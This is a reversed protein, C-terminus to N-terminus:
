PNMGAVYMGGMNGVQTGISSSPANFSGTGATSAAYTSFGAGAANVLTGLMSPVQATSVGQIPEPGFDFDQLARPMEYDAIPTDLPKLPDPAKEPEFMRQAKAQLDAARHQRTIDLLKMRTSRGASVLSETMIAQQRGLNALDSQAQKVASRGAQSKAALEGKKQISEIIMDENQFAYSQETERLQVMEQQKAAMASEQNLGLASQYLNESKNYLRLQQDHQYDRIKLQQQYNRLNNKDKFRALKLENGQKLEIARVMEQWDAQLKQKQMNYLPLDYENYRKELFAEEDNKAKKASNRSSIGSVINLGVSVAPLLWSAM